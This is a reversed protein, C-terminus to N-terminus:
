RRPRHARWRRPRRSRDHPQRRGAAAPRGAPATGAHRPRRAAAPSGRRSSAARDDARHVGRPALHERGAGGTNDYSNGLLELGDEPVANWEKCAVECAKCGICISTDTFFGKRPEPDEGVGADTAPDTPGALQQQWFGMLTRGGDDQQLNGTEVTLGARRRYEEVFRLLAAGQPRRGPAIDCSGAKSEQIHVNPDLTVGLLDNASDGTVRGRRRRRGLPLAARDPPRDQRRGTLPAVRETVLM